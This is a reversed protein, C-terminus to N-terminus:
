QKLGQPREPQAESTTTGQPIAINGREDPHHDLCILPMTGARLSREVGPGFLAGARGIIDERMAGSQIEENMELATLSDDQVDIVIRSEGTAEDFMFELVYKRM